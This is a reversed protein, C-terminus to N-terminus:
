ITIDFKKLAEVGEETVYHRMTKGVRRTIVWGQTICYVVFRNALVAPDIQRTGMIPETKPECTPCSAGSGDSKCIEGENGKEDM